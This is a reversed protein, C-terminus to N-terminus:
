GGLPLSKREQRSRKEQCLQAPQLPTVQQLSQSWVGESEFVVGLATTVCLLECTNKEASIITAPNFAFMASLDSKM